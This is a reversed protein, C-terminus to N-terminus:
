LLGKFGHRIVDRCTKAWIQTFDSPIIFFQSSMQINRNGHRPNIELNSFFIALDLLSQNIQPRLINM